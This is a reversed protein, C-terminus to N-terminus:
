CPKGRLTELVVRITDPNFGAPIELQAYELHIRLIAAPEVPQMQPAPDPQVFLEAFKPLSHPTVVADPQLLLKRRAYFQSTAVKNKRCWAEISLGSSTHGQIIDLWFQRKGACTRSDTQRNM